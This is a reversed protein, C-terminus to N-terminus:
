SNPVTGLQSQLVEPARSLLAAIKSPDKGGAEAFDPRGGGGGGVVPALEKVLRGAQVRSTLDKTVAVVLSVKGDHESALVVVGSGLRDRLSDSLARLGAKELGEVRRAILKVGAVDQTDDSATAGRPGGGGLALKMKLQDAERGLRKVDAQLRQISAVSQDATTNLAQLVGHLSARQEQAWRVAGLGTLAEIRRVGAAIGTEETILFVGIDGTARVHTGGCLEMSFGPVSVVRVRDGYKEGFLAMAGAAIADETSRVDTQVPTNRVIQENVIREIEQLQGSSISAFHVFDFRLRDPAVLSGAQKVHGGLVQRLAAHLLHTATHNRRTADRVADAVEATVIHDPRFAGGDVRVAHLRPRNHGQRVMAEVTAEAGDAGYIRGSDSVQGGAEAYFPTRALVLYGRAGASLRDVPSGTEDFVALVPVGRVSTTEYGAFQDGERDFVAELEPLVTLTLGKEGPRFASGSRAKERQGEMAREYGDRDITLHRQGALDEMFDLPVGLSDYLRFADEGAVVGGSAEARDLAEELRPLGATLVADFREEESRVVRVVADRNTVLEPYADGM